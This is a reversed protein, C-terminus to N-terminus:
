EVIVGHGRLVDLLPLLPMGLVTFYDGEVASFLQAGLGELQYAGVCSLVADGTAALHGHLFDDSFSRMTLVALDAHTWLTVGDRVLCVGSFQRHDRGRLAMLHVRAEAMDSPKDFWTGDCDLIQDAGIVLAGPHRAAVETAKLEALAIAATATDANNRQLADRVPAEDVDASDAVFAVGAGRLMAARAASKSALVVAPAPNTTV